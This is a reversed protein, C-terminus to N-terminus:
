ERTMMELRMADPSDTLHVQNQVSQEDDQETPMAGITAAGGYLPLGKTKIEQRLEPTIDFTHVPMRNAKAAADTDDILRMKEDAPLDLWQQETLGRERQMDTISLGTRPSPIDSSGVSIGYKKGFNNLYDPLIKDYFGKMGEGGIQLNADKLSYEGGEMPQEMIKRAADKGIYDPIQDIEVDAQYIVPKGSKDIGVIRKFEPNYRVENLHKSLDYRKAQEAGPTIAITDYGNEAAYDLMRKMAMEHWNKKFPADPVGRNQATRLDDMKTQLGMLKPTIDNAENVLQAFAEGGDPMEEAAKLLDKRRQSLADYEKSLMSIKGGEYGTKYGEKRGAQHWDSQIEDVLLIKKGEPNTFDSVRIHALVNPQTWHSGVYDGAAGSSDEPMHLLIERYNQGGKTSWNKFETNGGELVTEEIDQPPNDALLKRLRDKTVPLDSDPSQKRASLAKDIGRERIETEKVGPKSKLEKMFEDMTGKERAVSELAEDLKSYFPRGIKSASKAGRRVLSGLAGM